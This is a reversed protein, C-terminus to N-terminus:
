RSSGARRLLVVHAAESASISAMLQALGPPVEALQATLRAAAAREQAALAGLLGNLDAPLSPTGRSPAIRTGALRPPLVLRARLQRLHAEHEARIVAIVESAASSQGSATAYLDVMTEEGAIVHELTVVDNSVEPVPGLATIGKCGGLGASGAAAFAVALLTRRTVAVQRAGRRAVKLCIAPVLMGHRENSLHAWGYKAAPVV